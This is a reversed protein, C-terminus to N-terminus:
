RVEGGDVRLVEASGEALPLRRAWEVAEDEDAVDLVWLGTPRPRDPSRPERIREGGDFRVRAAGADALIAEAALLVGARVLEAGFRALAARDPAADEPGSGGGAGEGAYAMLVFRM